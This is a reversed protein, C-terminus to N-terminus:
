QNRFIRLILTFPPRETDMGQRLVEWQLRGDMNKPVPLGMLYLITPAIDIIHVGDFRGKAKINPGKALFIGKSTHNLHNATVIEKRSIRKFLASSYLDKKTHYTPQKFLYVIDPADDVYPGSYIEERRYVKEVIQEGTEPDKLQYM